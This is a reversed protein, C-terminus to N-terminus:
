VDVKFSKFYLLISFNERPFQIQESHPGFNFTIVFSTSVARLSLGAYRHTMHTNESTCPAPLM